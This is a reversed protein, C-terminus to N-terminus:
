HVNQIERSRLLKHATSRLLRPDAFRPHSDQEFESWHHNYRSGRLFWSYAPLCFTTQRYVCGVGSHMAPRCLFWPRHLLGTQRTGPAPRTWTSLALRRCLCLQVRLPLLEAQHDRHPLALGSSLCLFYLQHRRAGTWGFPASWTHLCVVFWFWLPSSIPLAKELARYSGFRPMGVSRSTSAGALKGYTRPLAHGLYSNWCPRTTFNM